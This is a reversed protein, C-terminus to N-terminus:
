WGVAIRSDDISLLIGNLPSPPALFFNAICTLAHEIDTGSAPLVAVLGSACTVSAHLGRELQTWTRSYIIRYIAIWRTVDRHRESDTVVFFESDSDINLIWYYEARRGCQRLWALNVEADIGSATPTAVWLGIKPLVQVQFMAGMM